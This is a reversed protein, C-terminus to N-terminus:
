KRHNRKLKRRRINEGNIRRKAGNNERWKASSRAQKDRMKAVGNRWRHAIQAAAMGGAALASAAMIVRYQNNKLAVGSAMIEKSAMEGSSRHRRKAMEIGGSIKAM